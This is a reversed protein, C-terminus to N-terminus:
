GILLNTYILGFATVEGFYFPKPAKLVLFIYLYVLAVCLVVVPHFTAVWLVGAGAALLAGVSHVSAMHPSRYYPAAAVLLLGFAALAALCQFNGGREMMAPTLLAATVVMVSSFLWKEKSIYFNDSVYDKVGYRIATYLLYSCMVALSIIVLTVM